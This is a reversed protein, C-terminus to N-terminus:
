LGVTFRNDTNVGIMSALIEFTREVCPVLDDVPTSGIEGAPLTLSWAKGYRHGDEHAHKMAMFTDEAVKPNAASRYIRRMLEEETWVYGIFLEHDIVKAWFSGYTVQLDLVVSSGFRLRKLTEELEKATERYDDPTIM